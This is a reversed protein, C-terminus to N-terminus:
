QGTRLLATFGAQTRSSQEKVAFGEANTILKGNKYSIVEYDVFGGKSGDEETEIVVTIEAGTEDAGKTEVLAGPDPRALLVVISRRVGEQSEEIEHFVHGRDFSYAPPMGQTWVSRTVKESPELPRGLRNKKELNAETDMREDLRVDLQMRFCDGVAFTWGDVQRNVFTVSLAETRRKKSM